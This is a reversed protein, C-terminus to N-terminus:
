LMSLGMTCRCRTHAPPRMFGNAFEMDVPVEDGDAMACDACTRNETSGAIWVKKANRDILGAKREERWVTLRAENQAAVMETKAIAESRLRLMKAHFKAVRKELKQGSVGAEIQAARYRNVRGQSYPGANSLGIGQDRIRRAVIRSHDGDVLGEAVIDKINTRTQDSIVTILTSSRTEAYNLAANTHEPKNALEDMVVVRETAEKRIVVRLPEYAAIEADVWVRLLRVTIADRVQAWADVIEQATDYATVAAGVHEYKALVPLLADYVVGGVAGIKRAVARQFGLTHKDAIRYSADSEPAISKV